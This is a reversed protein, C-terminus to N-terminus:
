FDWSFDTRRIGDPPAAFRRPEPRATIWLGDRLVSAFTDGKLGTLRSPDPTCPRTLSIFLPTTQYALFEPRPSGALRVLDALNEANNEPSCVFRMVGLEGLQRVAVRNFAYLSWDSTIDKAGCQRLLRLTALDAAEWRHFGRRILQKVRTRLAAFAAEKTFVPLALRVDTACEPPPEGDAGINLVIEDWTDNPLSQGIRLKAVTNPLTVELSLPPEDALAAAIHRERAVLRAADLAAVLQRRLDNLTSAPAFRREPDNVVLRGLSWDTDGMRSFAKEVAAFTRDPHQAADLPLAMEIRAPPDQTEASLGNESLTVSIDVPTGAALEGPRFSPVPFRRKMENSASCYVTAGAQIPADPPLLIEADEGAAIQFVTRRSIAGRMDSIGFGFPKGGEPAAFQLGDHRELARNTHLRMWLSGDRDKVIHKVTGIPTGLHGLSEPDIVGDAPADAPPYGDIYLTTTRRSFVTELDARSVTPPQGDLLERYHKVASAVYLPSKMRGEIKLSAVGASALADLHDDLRLDKMSFPLGKAGAADAYALRCCYACRGRNGSREKEMASFLCLGSLSYCLAGHVFVEIEVGSRRVITRIDDLSLERALVVRTFGLERLALVGELNHAVLQTSAHLALRPFHRRVLRAVGLDQVILGDPQLEDLIALKEVATSLEADDILTNFTVYAKKGQPRAVALLQRLQDATFNVAEARASFANLGLYVADAGAAFAALATELAGAPALLEIDTMDECIRGYIPLGSFNMKRTLGSQPM